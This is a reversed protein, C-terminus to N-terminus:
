NESEAPLNLSEFAIVIKDIEKKFDTISKEYFAELEKDSVDTYVKYDKHYVHLYRKHKNKINNLDRHDFIKNQKVHEYIQDRINEETQFITFIINFTTEDCEIEFCGTDKFKMYNGHKGLIETLRHTTFRVYRKQSPLLILEDIKKKIVREVLAMIDATRDPIYKVITDIIEKHGEYFKISKEEIEKESMLYKRLNKHYQRIFVYIENDTYLDVIENFLPEIDEYYLDIYDDDSPLLDISLFIFLKPFSSDYNEHIFDKYKRLQGESESAHVKNEIVIVFNPKENTILIDINHFERQVVTNGLSKEIPDQLEAKLETNFKKLKNLEFFKQLFKSGLGHNGKPDFLWALINSHWLEPESKTLIKFLNFEHLLNELPQIDSELGRFDFDM